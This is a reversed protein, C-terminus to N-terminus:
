TSLPPPQPSTGASRDQLARQRQVEFMIISGCVAANLSEMRGSMPVHVASVRGDGVAHRVTSSLGNGESGIILFSTSSIGNPAATCWDVHYHPTSQRNVASSDTADNEDLMTAAYMNCDTHAEMTEQHWAEFSTAAFIPLGFTAGMASRVAKPNWVDCCGPLLVISSVGSAVASRVLTGVNGPDAVGDLVLVLNHDSNQVTTTDNWQPIRAIAVIGQNTVTDTCAALVPATALTWRPWLSDDGGRFGEKDPIEFLENQYHEYHDIDVIIQEIVCVDGGSSAPLYNYYRWIDRILRPGELVVQQHAQRAQRSSLLAQIKKVTLSKPNTIVNSKQSPPPPQPSPADDRNAVSFFACLQRSSQPQRQQQRGLRISSRSSEHLAAAQSARSSWGSRSSGILSLQSATRPFFSRTVTTTSSTWRYRM